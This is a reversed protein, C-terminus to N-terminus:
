STLILQCGVSQLNFDATQEQISLNQLVVNKLSNKNFQLKKIAVILWSTRL